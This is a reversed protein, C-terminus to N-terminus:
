NAHALCVLLPIGFVFRYGVLDRAGMHMLISYMIVGAPRYWTAIEVYEIGNCSQVQQTTIFCHSQTTHM